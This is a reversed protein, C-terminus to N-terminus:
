RRRRLPIGAQRLVYYVVNAQAGVRQAVVTVSAGALYAAVIAGHDLHRQQSADVPFRRFTVVVRQRAFSPRWGARRFQLLVSSGGSWFGTTRASPPLAAGILAELAAFTLTVTGQDAPLAALHRLLPGYKTDGDRRAGM